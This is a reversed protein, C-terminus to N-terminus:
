GRIEGGTAKKVDAVIKQSVADIERDTLTATVPQLTVEIALSKKGEAALQGGEFVDFVAVQQILTRDAGAAAKVVDGAAVKRDLVFAFDRRVPLLEAAALAPRARSKRKEPPLADLFVEFAVVPGAVDLTRLTDPHLEGFHAIVAKPGLRLTGSRGPHFWAPADRTIQAKSADVGLAALVAAADAKADFASVAEAKGDWHRGSGTVRATGARVGAAAVFQDTEADGRYAQGLEFLAVDAMGRNRNREVATVLGPLLSPRMSSLDTSIPNSLELADAGGGFARAVDRPLFSWTVAEVMGRAALARRARRSRRQRETLVPQTVGHLRPLPVAEVRDLGAIRIVEEVLDAPGHVDPRWSPPAVALKRGKGSLTFGLTELITRIEAEDLTVGTLAAVHGLDFPISERADPMAGAVRAKSPHGGCHKLIMQTALDLGPMVSQPDVGREFRYRADTM